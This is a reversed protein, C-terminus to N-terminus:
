QKKELPSLSYYLYILLDETNIVKFPSAASALLQELTEVSKGLATAVEQKMQVLQFNDVTELLSTFFQSATVAIHEVDRQQWISRAIGAPSETAGPDGDAPSISFTRKNLGSRTKAIRQVDFFLTRLNTDTLSYGVLVFVETALAGRLLDFIPGELTAQAEEGVAISQPHHVSGHM